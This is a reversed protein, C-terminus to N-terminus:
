GNLEHETWHSIIEYYLRKNIKDIDLEAGSLGEVLSVMARRQMKYAQILESDSFGGFKAVAQANFADVDFEPLPLGPNIRLAEVFREGDQWWAIIHALLDGLRAYGQKKLFAEQELAPLGNFLGPYPLWLTQLCDLFQERTIKEM